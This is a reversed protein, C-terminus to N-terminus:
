KEAGTPKKNLVLGNLKLKELSERKMKLTIMRSPFAGRSGTAKAIAKIGTSIISVTKM